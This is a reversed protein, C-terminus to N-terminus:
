GSSFMLIIYLSVLHSVARRKKVLELINIEYQLKFLFFLSHKLWWVYGKNRQTVVLIFQPQPCEVQIYAIFDEKNIILRHLKYELATSKKIISRYYHSYVSQLLQIIVYMWLATTGLLSVKEWMILSFPESCFHSM